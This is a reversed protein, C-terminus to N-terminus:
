KKAIVTSKHRIILIIALWVISFAICATIIYLVLYLYFNKSDSNKSLEYFTWAPFAIIKGTTSYKYFTRDCLLHNNDNTTYGPCGGLYFGTEFNDLYKFSLVGWVIVLIVIVIFIRVKSKRPM